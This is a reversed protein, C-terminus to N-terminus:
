GLLTRHAPNHAGVEIGAQKLSKKEGPKLVIPFGAIGAGYDTKRRGPERM